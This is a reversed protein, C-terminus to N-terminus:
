VVAYVFQVLGQSVIWLLPLAMKKLNKLQKLERRREEEEAAKRAAKEQRKQARRDDKKRVTGEIQRPYTVIEAGGPEEFRFNYNAEFHEAAQYAQEDQEDFEEGDSEEEIELLQM